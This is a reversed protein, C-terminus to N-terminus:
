VLDSTPLTLHTYSVAEISSSISNTLPRINTKMRFFSSIFEKKSDLFIYQSMSLCIILDMNFFDIPDKFEVSKLVNATALKDSFMLSSISNALEKNSQTTELVSLYSEYTLFNTLFQSISLIEFISREIIRDRICM